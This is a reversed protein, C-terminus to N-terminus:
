EQEFTTVGWAIMASSFPLDYLLLGQQRRKSDTDVNLEGKERIKKDGHGQLQLEVHNSGSMGYRELM